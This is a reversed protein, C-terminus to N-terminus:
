LLKRTGRSSLGLDQFGSGLGGLVKPLKLKVTLRLGHLGFTFELGLARCEKKGLVDVGPLEALGQGVCARLM